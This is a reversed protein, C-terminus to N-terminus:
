WKRPTLRPRRETAAARYAIYTAWCTSVFACSLPRVSPPIVAFTIIDYAPWVRLDHALVSLMDANVSRCCRALRAALSESPHPSPQFCRRWMLSFWNGFTSLLSCSVAVKLLVTRPTVGPFLAEALQYTTPLM